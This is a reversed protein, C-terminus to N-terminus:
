FLTIISENHTIKKAFLICNKFVWKINLNMASQSEKLLVSPALTSKNKLITPLTYNNIWQTSNKPLCYVIQLYENINWNMASQSMNM